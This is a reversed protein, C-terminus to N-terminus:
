KIKKRLALHMDHWADLCSRSKTKVQLLNSFGAECLHTTAFPVLVGLAKKTSNPFAAIQPTWINELIKSIKAVEDRQM